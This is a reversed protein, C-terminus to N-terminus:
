QKYFYGLCTVFQLREIRNGIYDSIKQELFAQRRKTKPDKSRVPEEISNLKLYVETQCNNLVNIFIFLSPHTKYFCENFKSHFSECCNTTRTISSTCSAWINPPFMAEENIYTDVLYDSFEVVRNDNPQIGMLDLTFCDSVENPHLFPLGFVYNLWQGVENNASNYESALGLKQLKRYWSQALHFRCGIISVGPWVFEVANHISKEFDSVIFKPNFVLNVDRCKKKIIEFTNIYDSTKKGPLICFVLPIYHGNIFIHLTFLQSFYNLCYDFTGDLYITSYNCLARLNTECSFVLINKDQEAAILFNEKKITKCDLDQLIKITEEANTPLTPHIKKRKYYVNNRIYSIDKM